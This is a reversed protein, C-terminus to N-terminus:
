KRRRKRNGEREGDIERDGEREVRGRLNRECDGERGKEERRGSGRECVCERERRV